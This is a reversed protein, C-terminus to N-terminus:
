QKLCFCASESVVQATELSKVLKWPFGESGASRIKSDLLWGNVHTMLHGWPDCWGVMFPIHDVLHSNYPSTWYVWFPVTVLGQKLLWIWGYDMFWWFKVMYLWIGHGYNIYRIIPSKPKIIPDCHYIFGYYLWWVKPDCHNKTGGFIAACWDMDTWRAASPGLARPPFSRWSRSLVAMKVRRGRGDWPVMSDGHFNRWPFPPNWFLSTFMFIMFYWSIDHIDM